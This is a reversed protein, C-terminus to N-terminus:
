LTVHQIMCHYGHMGVNNMDDYGGALEQNQSLVGSNDQIISTTHVTSIPDNSTTADIQVWAVSFIGCLLTRAKHQIENVPYLKDSSLTQQLLLYLTGVTNHFTPNSYNCHSTPDESLLAAYVIYEHSPRSMLLLLEQLLILLKLLWLRPYTFKM